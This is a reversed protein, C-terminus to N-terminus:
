PGYKVQSSAKLVELGSMRGIAPSYYAAPDSYPAPASLIGDEMVTVRTNRVTTVGRLSINPFNGYGDEERVYVGPSQRLIRNIDTTTFERIDEDDFYSASGLTKWAQEKSGVVTVTLPQSGSTTTTAESPTAEAPKKTEEALIPLFM